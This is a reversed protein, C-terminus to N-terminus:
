KQIATSILLSAQRKVFVELLERCAEFFTQNDGM